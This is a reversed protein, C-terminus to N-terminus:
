KESIIKINRLLPEGDHGTGVVDGTVLYCKRNEKMRFDLDSKLKDTNAIPNGNKDALFVSVGAELDKEKVRDYAGVPDFECAWTFDSNDDLSMSMFNISREYPPIEGYRIYTTM